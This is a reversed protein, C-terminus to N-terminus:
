NHLQTLLFKSGKFKKPKHYILTRAHLNTLNHQCINGDNKNALLWLCTWRHWLEWYHGLIYSSWWCCHAMHYSLPPNWWFHSQATLSEEARSHFIIHLLPSYFFSKLCAHTEKNLSTRLQDLPYDLQNFFYIVELILNEKVIGLGFQLRSNAPLIAVSSSKIIVHTFSWRTLM